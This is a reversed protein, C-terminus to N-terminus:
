AGLRVIGGSSYNNIEDGAIARGLGMVAAVVGDIKLDDNERAPKMNGNNDRYVSVNSVNWAFVSNASPNLNRSIILSEFFKTPAHLTAVGQRMQVMQFGDAELKPVIWSKNWPDFGIERIDYIQGLRNIEDRIYDYDVINGPTTKLDGKKVFERYLNVLRRPADQDTLRDAPLWFFPLLHWPEKDDMPPFTLVLACLDKTSSLDLGAFCPRGELNARKAPLKRWDEMNIFRASQEVWQNLRLQRFANQRSPALKARNCQDRLEEARVSEGLNPNGKRWNNEDTWDDGPDMEAIFCFYSDDSFAGGTSAGELVKIGHDRQAYCVGQQNSGATTITFILPQRRAGTGTEIVDLIESTKHQHLEDVIAGSPNLGDLTHADSSLPLFKALRKEYTLLAPKKGGSIDLNRALQPSQRVMKICEEFCIKAQDRTTAAAYIEAGDERDHMLLYLGIGACFTTKGNKRAIQIYAFRFRRTHDARRKWGFLVWIIFAQWDSLIFQKGAWQGKSHRLLSFFQFVRDPGNEDFYFPFEKKKKRNNADALNGLHRRVALLELRGVQIEGLDVARIYERARRICEDAYEIRSLEPFGTSTM